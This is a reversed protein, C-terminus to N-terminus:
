KRPGCRRASRASRRFKEAMSSKLDRVKTRQEATLGLREAVPEIREAITERLTTEGNSSDQAATRVEVVVVRDEAFNKIKERQEPTLVAAIGKLEEGLLERRQRLAVRRIPRRVAYAGETIQRRQDASLGLKDALSELRDAISSAAVSACCTCRSRM